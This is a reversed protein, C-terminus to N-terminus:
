PGWCVHHILLLCLSTCGLTKLQATFQPILQINQFITYSSMGLEAKDDEPESRESEKNDDEEDDSDDAEIDQLEPMNMTDDDDSGDAAEAPIIPSLALFQLQSPWM